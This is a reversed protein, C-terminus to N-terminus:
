SPGAVDRVLRGVADHLSRDGSKKRINDCQTKVTLVSSGRAAAIKARSEGLASRLLVEREAGTLGYREQWRDAEMALREVLSSASRIFAELLATTAPKVAYSAGLECARNIARPESQGTLVLVPMAPSVARVQELVDLGSGDPLGLDLVIAGWPRSELVRLADRASRVVFPNGWRGLVRKLSRGYAVNDEVVL